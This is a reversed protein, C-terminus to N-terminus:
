TQDLTDSIGFILDLKQWFDWFDQCQYPDIVLNCHVFSVISSLKENGKMYRTVLIKRGPIKKGRKTVLTVRESEVQGRHRGAGTWLHSKVNLRPDTGGMIAAGDGYVVHIPPQSSM